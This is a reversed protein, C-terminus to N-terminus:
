KNVLFNDKASQIAEYAEFYCNSKRYSESSRKDVLTMLKNLKEIDVTEKDLKHLECYQNLHTDHEICQKNWKRLMKDKYKEFQEKTWTETTFPTNEVPYDIFHDDVRVRYKVNCKTIKNTYVFVTAVDARFVSDLETVTEKESINFKPNGNEDRDIEGHTTNYKMNTAEFTLIEPYGVVNTETTIKPECYMEDTTLNAIILTEITEIEQGLVIYKM